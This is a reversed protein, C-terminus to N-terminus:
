YDHQWSICVFDDVEGVCLVEYCDHVAVLDEVRITRVCVEIWYYLLILLNLGPYVRPNIM